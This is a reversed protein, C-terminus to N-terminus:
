ATARILTKLFDWAEQRTAWGQSYLWVNRYRDLINFRYVQSAGMSRVTYRRYENGDLDEFRESMLKMDDKRSM